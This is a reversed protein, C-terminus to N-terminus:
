RLLLALLRWAGADVGRRAAMRWESARGDGRIALVVERLGVVVAADLLALLSLM